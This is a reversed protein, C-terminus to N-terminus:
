TFFDETTLLCLTRHRRWAMPCDCKMLDPITKPGRPLSVGGCRLAVGGGGTLCAPPNLSKLLTSLADTGREEEEREGEREWRERGPVVVVIALFM